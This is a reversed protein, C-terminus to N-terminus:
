LLKMVGDGAPGTGPICMRLQSLPHWLECGAQEIRIRDTQVFLGFRPVPGLPILGIGAVCQAGRDASELSTGGGGSSVSLARCKAPHRNAIRCRSARGLCPRNRINGSKV